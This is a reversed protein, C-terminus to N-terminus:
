NDKGFMAEERDPLESLVQIRWETSEHYWKAREDQTRYCGICTGVEDSVCIGICPNTLNAHDTM